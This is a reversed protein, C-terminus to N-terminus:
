KIRFGQKLVSAINIQDNKTLKYLDGNQVLELSCLLDEVQRLSEKQLQRVL